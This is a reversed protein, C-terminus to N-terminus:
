DDTVCRSFFLRHSRPEASFHHPSRPPVTYSSRQCRQCQREVHRGAFPRAPTLRFRPIIEAQTDFFVSLCRRLRQSKLDPPNQARLPSLTHPACFFCWLLPISAASPWPLPPFRGAALFPVHHLQGPVLHTGSLCMLRRGLRPDLCHKHRHHNQILTM